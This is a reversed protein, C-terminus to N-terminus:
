CTLSPCASRTRSRYAYDVLAGRTAGKDRKLTEETVFNKIEDHRSIRMGMTHTCQGLVHGLTELKVGCQRCMLNVQPKERSLVVINATTNTRM